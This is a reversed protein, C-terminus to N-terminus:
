INQSKKNKSRKSGRTVKIRYGPSKIFGKSDYAVKNKLSGPPMRKYAKITPTSEEGSEAQTSKEGLFPNHIRSPTIKNIQTLLGCKYERLYRAFELAYGKGSATILDELEQITYGALHEYRREEAGLYQFVTCSTTKM